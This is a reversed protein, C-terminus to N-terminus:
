NQALILGVPKPGANSFRWYLRLSKLAYRILLSPCVLLYLLHKTQNILSGLCVFPCFSCGLFDNKLNSFSNKLNSYSNKLSSFSNKLNNHRNKLSSLSYNLNSFSNELSSLHRKLSSFGDNLSSFLRKSNFSYQKSRCVCIIRSRSRGSALQANLNFSLIDNYNHRLHLISLIDIFSFM